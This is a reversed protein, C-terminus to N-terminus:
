NTDNTDNTNTKWALTFKRMVAQCDNCYPFVTELTILCEDSMRSISGKRGNGICLYWKKDSYALANLNRIRFSYLFTLLLPANPATKLTISSAILSLFSFDPIETDLFLGLSILSGLTQRSFM